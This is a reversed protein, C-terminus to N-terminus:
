ARQRSEPAGKSNESGRRGGPMAYRSLQSHSPVAPSMAFSFSMQVAMPAAVTAAVVASSAGPYNCTVQVTPPTIEPYQAVPLILVAIAGIMTIIVSIVAAFIPRDIFFHAM